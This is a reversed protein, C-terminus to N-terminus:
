NVKSAFCRKVWQFLIISGSLWCIFESLRKDFLFNIIEFGISDGFKIILQFSMDFIINTIKSPFWNSNSKYVVLFM